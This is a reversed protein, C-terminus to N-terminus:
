GADLAIAAMSAGVVGERAICRVGADVIRVRTDPVSAEVHEMM